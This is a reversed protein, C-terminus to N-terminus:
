LADMGQGGKEGLENPQGSGSYRPQGCSCGSSSQLEVWNAQKSQWPSMPSRRMKQAGMETAARVITLISSLSLTSCASHTLSVAGAARSLRPAAGVPWPFRRWASRSCSGRCGWLSRPERVKVGEELERTLATPTHNFLCGGGERCRSEPASMAASADCHTTSSSDMASGSSALTMKQAKSEKRYTKSEREKKTEGVEKRSVGFGRKIRALMHRSVAACSRQRYPRAPWDLGSLRDSLM